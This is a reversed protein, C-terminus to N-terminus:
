RCCGCAAAQGAEEAIASCGCHRRLQMLPYARGVGLPQRDTPRGGLRQVVVAMTEPGIGCCGGVISAGNRLWGATHDAYLEDTLDRRVVMGGAQQDGSGPVSENKEITWTSLDMEEWFNGYAGIRFGDGLELESSMCAAEKIASQIIEPTACNFLVGKAGLTAAAAVADAIPTGDVICAADSGPHLRRPNFSIWIRASAGGVARCAAAAEAAERISAMTECLFVDAGQLGELLEAYQSQLECDPLGAVHYSEGLPPVSAAVLVRGGAAEEEVAERALRLARAALEQVRHGEGVKDLYFRTTAYSATTIVTCGAQIYDRHLQKVADPTDRLAATSFLTLNYAVDQGLAKRRKLEM